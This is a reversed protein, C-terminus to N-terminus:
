FSIIVDGSDVDLQRDKPIPKLRHELFVSDSIGRKNEFYLRAEDKVCNCDLLRSYGRNTLVRDNRILANLAHSVVRNKVTDNVSAPFPVPTLVLIALAVLFRLLRKRRKTM